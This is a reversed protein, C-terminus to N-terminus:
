RKQTLMGLNFAFGRQKDQRLVAMFLLLNPGFHLFDVVKGLIDEPEDDDIEEESDEEEEVIDDSEQRKLEPKAAFFTINIKHIYIM